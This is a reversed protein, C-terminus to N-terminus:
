MENVALAIYMVHYETKALILEASTHGIPGMYPAPITPQSALSLKSASKM